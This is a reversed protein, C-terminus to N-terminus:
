GFAMTSWTSKGSPGAERNQTWGQQLFYKTKRM